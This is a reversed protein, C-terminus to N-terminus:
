MFYLESSSRLQTNNDSSVTVNGNPKSDVCDTWSEACKDWPLESVM